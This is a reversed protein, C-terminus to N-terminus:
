KAKFRNIFELYQKELKGYYSMSYRLQRNRHAMNYMSPYSLKTELYAEVYALAINKKFAEQFDDKQLAASIEPVLKAKRAELEAVSQSNYSDHHKMLKKYFDANRLSSIKGYYIESVFESLEEDTVDKFWETHLRMLHLTEEILLIEQGAVTLLNWASESIVHLGSDNVHMAKEVSSEQCKRRLGDYEVLPTPFRREALFVFDLMHYFQLLEKALVPEQTLQKKLKEDVWKGATTVGLHGITIAKTIVSPSRLTIPSINRRSYRDIIRPSSLEEIPHFKNNFVALCISGGNGEGPDIALVQSQIMLAFLFLILKM